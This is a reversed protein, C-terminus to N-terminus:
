SKNILLQLTKDEKMSFKSRKCIKIMGSLLVTVYTKKEWKYTVFLVMLDTLQSVMQHM